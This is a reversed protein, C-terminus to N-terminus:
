CNETYDAVDVSLGSGDYIGRLTEVDRRAEPRFRRRTRGEGTRVKHYKYFECCCNQVDALSLALRSGDDGVLWPFDVGRREFAAEQNARLWRMAALDSCTSTATRLADLGMTAGPGATAWEDPSFPLTSAGERGPIPYLLDVLAQYALFNGFGPLARIADYVAEPGEAAGIEAWAADFRDRVRGFLRAVNAIKDPGDLWAYGSVTYAGTFVPGDAARDRLAAEFEDVDFTDLRQFGVSAHTEARGLLRYILVNFARDRAPADRALISQIAYQTGPDLRRYVNTFRHDRLIPDDTWPPTDGLVIRRYWVRQRETVFWWFTELRDSRFDRRTCGEEPADRQRRDTM